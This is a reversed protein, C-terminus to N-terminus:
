LRTRFLSRISGISWHSRKSCTYNKKTSGASERCAQNIRQSMQSCDGRCRCRYLATTQAAAAPLSAMHSTMCQCCYNVFRTDVDVCLYAPSASSSSSESTSQRWQRRLGTASNVVCCMSDCSVVVNDGVRCCLPESM